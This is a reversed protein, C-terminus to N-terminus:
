QPLVFLNVADFCNVAMKYPPLSNVAFITFCPIDNHPMGEATITLCDFDKIVM